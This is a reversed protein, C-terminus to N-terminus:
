FSYRVGASVSAPMAAAAVAALAALSVDRRALPRPSDFM